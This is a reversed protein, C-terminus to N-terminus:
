ITTPSPGCPLSGARSPGPWDTGTTSSPPASEWRSPSRTPRSSRASSATTGGSTLFRARETLTKLLDALQARGDAIVDFSVFAAAPQAPTLIGAQHTGHFAVPAASQREAAQASGTEALALGGGALVAGAAGAGLATKVFSRRGTHAPCAPPPTDASPMSTNGELDEAPQDRREASM